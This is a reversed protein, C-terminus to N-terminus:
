FRSFCLPSNRVFDLSYKLFTATSGRLVRCLPAPAGEIRSTGSKPWLKGSFSSRQHCAKVASPSSVTPRTTKNHFLEGSTVAMWWDCQSVSYYHPHIIPVKNDIRLNRLCGHFRHRAVQLILGALGVTVYPGGFM